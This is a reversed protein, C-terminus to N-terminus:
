RLRDTSIILKEDKNIGKAALLFCVIAIAQLIATLSFTGQTFTTSQNYYLFILILQLIIAIICLRLQLKRNKFLAIIIVSLVVIILSVITLWMTEGAKLQYSAEGKSNTGSYFSFSFGAAVFLAALLLWVSQIRQIM